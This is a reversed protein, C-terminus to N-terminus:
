QVSPVPPTTPTAPAVYPGSIALSDFAARNTPAHKREIDLPFIIPWIGAFVCLKRGAFLFAWFVSGSAIGGVIAAAFPMAAGNLNMSVAFARGFWLPDTVRQRVTFMTVVMPGNASGAVFAGVFALPENHSSLALLVLGIGACFCAGAMLTAERGRSDLRHGMVMSSIFGAFGVTAIM